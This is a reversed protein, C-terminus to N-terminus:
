ADWQEPQGDERGGEGRRRGSNGEQAEPIQGILPFYYVGSSEDYWQRPKFFCADAWAGILKELRIEAVRLGSLYSECGCGLASQSKSSFSVPVKYLNYVAGSNRGGPM